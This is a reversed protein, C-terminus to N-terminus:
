DEYLLLTRIEYFCKQHSTDKESTFLFIHKECNQMEYHKMHQRSYRPSQRSGLAKYVCVSLSWQSADQIESM